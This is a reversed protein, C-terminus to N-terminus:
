DGVIQVESELDINFMSAVNNRIDAMLSLIDAATANGTNIIFNAHQPSIEAGGVRRGKLGAAEILRGAPNEPSPNKFCCGASPLGLPQRKMRASMMERAEKKLKSPDERHMRFRGELIIPKGPFYQREPAPWEIKRRGFQIQGSPIVRSEGGPTLVTISIIVDAMWGAHTGANM